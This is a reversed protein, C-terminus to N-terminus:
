PSFPDQDQDEPAVCMFTARTPTLLPCALRLDQEVLQPRGISGCAEEATARVEEPTSFLANYCVGIRPLGQTPGRLPARPITEFPAVQQAGCGALALALLLALRRM